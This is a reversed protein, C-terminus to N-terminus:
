AGRNQGATQQSQGGREGPQAEAAAGEAMGHTTGQDHVRCRPARLLEPAQRLSPVEEAHTGGHAAPNSGPGQAEEAGEEPVSFDVEKPRCGNKNIRDRTSSSSSPKLPPANTNRDSPNTECLIIAPRLVMASGPLLPPRERLYSPWLNSGM